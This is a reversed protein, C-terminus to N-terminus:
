RGDAADLAAQLRRPSVKVATGLPQAFVQVRYEEVLWRYEILKDPRENRRAAREARTTYAHWWPDTQDQRETDQAVDERDLKDLRQAIAALYRQLHDPRPMQSICGAHVLHALQDRIDEMANMWDLPVGKDLRRKIDAYAAFADRLGPWLAHADAFLRSRATDVQAGFAARDAPPAEGMQASLVAHRLDAILAPEPDAEIFATIDADALATAPPPALRLAALTKVDALDKRLARSPKGLALTLLRLVGFRHLRHAREADDILQLDVHAGRDVLAPTTRIRVGSQTLTVIEPPEPEPWDTLGQQEVDNAPMAQVAGRAQESFEAQLAALDRGAAMPKGQEDLEEFRMALHPSPTFNQWADAPIEAGTMQRVAQRIQEGLPGAGFEVRGAIAAAFDPVPVVARRLRKPLAKLYERLKEELLGPVLWDAREASFQNLAALPLSLTVGDAPHGPEFRYSLRIPTQGVILTEPFENEPLSLGAHRTLADEDFRLGADGHKQLFQQLSRRDCVDAGLAQDYFAAQTHEDVLLDRRRFRAERAALDDVLAQNHALFEQVRGRAGVLQFGVLGERIFLDRAGPPDIRGFDVKRGDALTLGFLKVRERAM